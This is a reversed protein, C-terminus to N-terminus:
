VCSRIKRRFSQSIRGCNLSLVNGMVAVIILLIIQLIVSAVFAIMLGKVTQATYDVQFANVIVCPIVLYLVIKSLVKSEEDNQISSVIEQTTDGM